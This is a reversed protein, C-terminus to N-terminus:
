LYEDREDPQGPSGLVRRIVEGISMHVLALGCVLGYQFVLFLQASVTTPLALGRFFGGVGFATGFTGHTELKYCSGISDELVWGMQVTCYVGLIYVDAWRGFDVM